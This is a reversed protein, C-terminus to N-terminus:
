IGTELKGTELQAAESATLWLLRSGGALQRQYHPIRQLWARRISDDPPLAEIM